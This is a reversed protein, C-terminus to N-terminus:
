DEYRWETWYLWICLLTGLGSFVGFILLTTAFSVCLGTLWHAVLMLMGTVVTVLVLMVLMRRIFLHTNHMM